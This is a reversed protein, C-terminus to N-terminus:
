KIGGLLVLIWILAVIFFPLLSVPLLIWHNVATFDWLVRIALFVLSSTVFIFFVVKGRAKLLESKMTWLVSLIPLVMYLCRFIININRLGVYWMINDLIEFVLIVFPAVRGILKIWDTELEEPFKSVIDNTNKSVVSLNSEIRGLTNAVYNIQNKNDKFKDADKKEVLKM